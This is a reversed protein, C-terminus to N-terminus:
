RKRVALVLPTEWHFRRALWVALELLGCWHLLRAIRKARGLAAWENFDLSRLRHEFLSWGWDEVKVRDGWRDCWRALRRYNILNLTDVYAPDRGLLRVYLRAGWAPLGPFWLLGYHGEWWSGYNPVICLLLGGPKLVRLAEDLVKEPDGVHELVNSSYVLDFTGDAFPLAEGSAECVANAPLGYHALLRRCVALSGAFESNSPEVGHIDLGYRTRGRVVLLGAGSGIELIRRGTLTGHREMEAIQEDARVESLLDAVMTEVPVRTVGGIFGSAIYGEALLGYLEVWDPPAVVPTEMTPASTQPFSESM